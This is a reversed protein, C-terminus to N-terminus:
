HRVNRFRDGGELIDIRQQLGYLEATMAAVQMKLAEMERELMDTVGLLDDRRQLGHGVEGRLAQFRRHLALVHHELDARPLDLAAMLGHLDSGFRDAEAMLSATPRLPM